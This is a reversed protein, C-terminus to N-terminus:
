HGKTERAVKEVETVEMEEEPLDQLILLPTTGYAIFNLAVGGYPWKKRASYGHATLLVLDVDREEVLQHLAEAPNESVRLVTEVETDLRARLEELYEEGKRRNSETLQEVLRAEEETLPARRPVEPKSVVHALLLPCEHYAALTTALPLTFEARQSGDLPVLVHKYVLGALDSTVPQYARVIMVPVFARLIVKQVVSSVNWQSLGSRGHSSLIILDAGEDRSFQVVQEAAEGELVERDAEVGVEKLRAVMEDLYARAEARRMQWGLPDTAKSAGGATPGRVARLLTIRSDFPRALAVAHPLVCEALSSGDLPVILHDFM